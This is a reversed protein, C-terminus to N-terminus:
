PTFSFRCCIASARVTETATVPGSVICEYSGGRIRSATGSTGTGVVCAGGTLFEGPNCSAVSGYGYTRAYSSSRADEVRCSWDAAASLAPSPNPQRAESPNPYSVRSETDANAPLASATMLILGLLYSPFGDKRSNQM